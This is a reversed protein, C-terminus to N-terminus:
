RDLINLSFGASGCYSRYKTVFEVLFGILLGLSGIALVIIINSARYISLSGIYRNLNLKLTSIIVVMRDFM